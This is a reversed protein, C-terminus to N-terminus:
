LRKTMGNCFHEFDDSGEIWDQSNVLIDVTALCVGNNLSLRIFFIFAEESAIFSRKRSSLLVRLVYEQEPLSERLATERILCVGSVGAMQVLGGGEKKWIFAASLLHPLPYVHCFCRGFVVCALCCGECHNQDFRLLQTYESELHPVNEAASQQILSSRHETTTLM